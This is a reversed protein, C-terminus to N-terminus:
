SLFWKSIFEIIDPLINLIWNLIELVQLWNM